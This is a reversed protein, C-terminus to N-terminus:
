FHWAVALKIDNNDLKMKEMYDPSYVPNYPVTKDQYKSYRYELRTSIQPTFFHEFGAGVTYGNEWKTDSYTGFGEVFTRKIDMGAYGGTVYVLSTDMGFVYGVRLRLSGSYKLDATIPFSPDAVGHFLQDTTKKQSRGDFNAEVGILFQPAAMWNYGGFVGFVGGDPKTNETYGDPVNRFTETGKDQATAYGAEIGMYPGEFGAAYVAGSTAMMLAAAMGIHKMKNM